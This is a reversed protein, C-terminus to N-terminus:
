DDVQVIQVLRVARADHLDQQSTYVLGWVVQEMWTQSFPSPVYRRVSVPPTPGLVGSLSMLRISEPTRPERLEAASVQPAMADIAARLTALPESLRRQWMQLWEQTVLFGNERELREPLPLDHLQSVLRAHLLLGHLLPGNSGHSFLLSSRLVDLLTLLLEPSSPTAFFVSPSALAGVMRFLGSVSPYSWAKVHPAINALIAIASPQM